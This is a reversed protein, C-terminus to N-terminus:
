FNGRQAMQSWSVHELVAVFDELTTKSKRTRGTKEEVGYGVSVM